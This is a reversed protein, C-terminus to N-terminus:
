ISPIDFLLQELARRRFQWTYLEAQDTQDELRLLCEGFDNLTLIASMLTRNDRSVSIREEELRFHIVSYIGPGGGERFVSFVQNNHNAEFSFKVDKPQNTVTFEQRAKVDDAVELQLRAFVKCATCKARENVWDLEKPIRSNSM